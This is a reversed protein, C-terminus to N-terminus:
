PQQVSAPEKIVFVGGPALAAHIHELVGSPNAQHHIADFVFVKVSEQPLRSTLTRRYGGPGFLGSWREADARWHAVRRILHRREDTRRGPNDRLVPYKWASRRRLRIARGRKVADHPCSRRRRSSRRCLHRHHELRARRRDVGAWDQRVPDAVAREDGRGAASDSGAIPTLGRKDDLRFGAISNSGANMVYLLDDDLTLSTPRTGGSAVPSGILRLGDHDVKFASVTSNGANVVVLARGDRSVVLSHGSGLGAGTGTGGTPFTGAPTLAGNAARHFALVANGSAANTITYVAKKEGDALAASPTLLAGVAAAAAFVHLVRRALRRRTAHVM